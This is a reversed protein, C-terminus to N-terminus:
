NLFGSKLTVSRLFSYVQVTRYILNLWYLIIKYTKIKKMLIMNKQPSKAELLETCLISKYLIPNNIIDIVRIVM